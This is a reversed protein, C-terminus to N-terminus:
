LHAGLHEGAAAAGGVHGEAHPAVLERQEQGLGCRGIRGRHGLAGGGLDAAGEAHRHPRVVAGRLLAQDRAGVVVQVPHLAGAGLLAALGDPDRQGRGAVLAVAKRQGASQRRPHAGQEIGVLDRAHGDLLQPLAEAAVQGHDM